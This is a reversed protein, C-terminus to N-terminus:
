QQNEEDSSNGEHQSGNVETILQEKLDDREEKMAQVRIDEELIAKEKGCSTFCCCIGKSIGYANPIISDFYEYLMYWFVISGSM